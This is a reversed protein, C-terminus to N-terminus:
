QWFIEHRSSCSVSFGFQDWILLMLRKGCERERAEREKDRGPGKEDAEAGGDENVGVGSDRTRRQRQGENDRMIDLSLARATEGARDSIANGVLRLVDRM